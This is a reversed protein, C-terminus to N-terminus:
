KPLNIKEPIKMSAAGSEASTLDVKTGDSFRVDLYLKAVKGALEDTACEGVSVFQLYEGGNVEESNPALNHVSQDAILDKVKTSFREYPFSATTLQPIAIQNDRDKFFNYVSIRKGDNTKNYIQCYAVVFKGIRQLKAIVLPPTNEDVNQYIGNKDKPPAKVAAPAPEGDPGAEPKKAKTAAVDGADEPEDKKAIKPAKGISDLAAKNSAALEAEKVKDAKMKEAAADVVPAAKPDTAPSKVRLAAESAKRKGEFEASVKKSRAEDKLVGLRSAENGRAWGEVSRIESLAREYEVVALDFQQHRVMSNGTEIAEEATGIQKKASPPPPPTGCGSLEISMLAFLTACGVTQLLKKM